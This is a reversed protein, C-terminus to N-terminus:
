RGFALIRRLELLLIEGAALIREFHETARLIRRHRLLRLVILAIRLAHRRVAVDRRDDGGARRRISIGIGVVIGPCVSIGVGIPIRPIPARRDAEAEAGREDEDTTVAMAVVEMAAARMM